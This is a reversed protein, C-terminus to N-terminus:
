CYCTMPKSSPVSPGTTYDTNGSCRKTYDGCFYPDTHCRDTDPELVGGAIKPTVGASITHKDLSLKKLNKKQVSLKM